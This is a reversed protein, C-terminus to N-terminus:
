SSSAVGVLASELDAVDAAEAVRMLAARLRPEVTAGAIDRLRERRQDDLNAAIAVAAAGRLEAEVAPNSAIAWLRDIELAQRYQAGHPALSRLSEVWVRSRRGGRALAAREYPRVGGEAGASLTEWIRQLVARPADRGFPARCVRLSQGRRLTLVVDTARPVARAVDDYRIVRPTGIWSIRLAEAGIVVRRPIAALLVGGVALCWGADVWSADFRGADLAFVLAAALLALLPPVRSRAWLVPRRSPAAVENM